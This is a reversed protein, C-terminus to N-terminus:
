YANLNRAAWEFAVFTAANAWPARVLTPILGKFFGRVGAQRYM